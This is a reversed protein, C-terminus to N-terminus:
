RVEEVVAAGGQFGPADGGAGGGGAHVLHGQVLDIFMPHDMVAVRASPPQAARWVVEM